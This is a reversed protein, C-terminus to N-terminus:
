LQLLNSGHCGLTSYSYHHRANSTGYSGAVLIPVWHQAQGQQQCPYLHRCPAHTLRHWLICDCSYKRTSSGQNAAFFYWDLMNWHLHWMQM